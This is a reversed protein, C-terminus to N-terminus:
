VLPVSSENEGPGSSSALMQFAGVLRSRSELLTKQRGIAPVSFRSSEALQRQETAVPFSSIILWGATERPWQWCAILYRTRVPLDEADRVLQLNIFSYPAPQRLNREILHNSFYM